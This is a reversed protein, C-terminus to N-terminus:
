QEPLWDVSLVLRLSVSTVDRFTLRSTNQTGLYKIVDRHYTVWLVRQKTTAGDNSSQAVSSSKAPGLVVTIMGLATASQGIQCSPYSLRM